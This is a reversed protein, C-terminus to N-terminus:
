NAIKLQVCILGDNVIAYFCNAFSDYTSLSYLEEKFTITSLNEGRQADVVTIFRSSPVITISRDLRPDDEPSISSPELIGLDTIPSNISQQWNQTGDEKYGFALDGELCVLLTNETYFLSNIRHEFSKKWVLERSRKNYAFLNNEAALYINDVSFVPAITVQYDLTSTWLIDLEIDRAPLNVIRELYKILNQTDVTLSNPIQDLRLATSRKVTIRTRHLLQDLFRNGFMVYMIALLTLLIIVGTSIQLRSLKRRKTKILRAKGEIILWMPNESGSFSEVFHTLGALDSHSDFVQACLNGSLVLFRHNEAIFVRQVKIPIDKDAFGLLNLKQLTQMQYHHYDTGAVRLKKGDSLCCFLRGFQVFFLEHDFFIAFLVSLGKESLDSRRLRAHMKWHLENIYGKLWKEVEIRSVTNVDSNRVSLKLDAAIEELQESHEPHWMMLLWGFRGDQSFQKDIFSNPPNDHFSQVSIM